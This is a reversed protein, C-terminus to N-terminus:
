YRNGVAVKPLSSDILDLEDKTFIVDYADLNEQLREIKRTGPIVTIEDNQNLIWALALQAKSVQKSEALQDLVEVFQMNQAFAEESFRPNNLRFDGNELDARSKIAGTLFGRGL